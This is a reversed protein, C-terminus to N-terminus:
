YHGGGTLGYVSKASTIPSIINGSEDKLYKANVNAM